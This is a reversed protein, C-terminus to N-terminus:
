LVRYIIAEITASDAWRPREPWDNFPALVQLHDWRGVVDDIVEIPLTRGDGVSLTNTKDLHRRGEHQGKSGTVERFFVRREGRPAALNRNYSVARVTIQSM